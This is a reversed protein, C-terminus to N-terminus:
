NSSEVWESVRNPDLPSSIPQLGHWTGRPFVAVITVFPWRGKTLELAGSRHVRFRTAPVRLWLKRGHVFFGETM